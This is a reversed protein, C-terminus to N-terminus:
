RKRKKAPKGRSPAGATPTGSVAKTANTESSALAMAAPAAPTLPSSDSAHEQKARDSKRPTAGFFSALSPQALWPQSRKTDAPEALMSDTQSSAPMGAGAALTPSTRFADNFMVSVAIHDSYGPPTYILGTYPATPFQTDNLRMNDVQLSLGDGQAIGNVAAAHWGDYHTAANAAAQTSTAAVTPEGVRKGQEAEVTADAWPMGGPLCTSPASVVCEAFTARDVIVYDLRTGSNIYRSNSARSWTTFRDQAEPHVEAFIDAWPADGEPRVLERLWPVCGGERIHICEASSALQEAALGSAECIDKVPKWQEKWESFPGLSAEMSGVSIRGDVDVWLLRREPKQDAPRHTLNLDGCLVVRKGSSRLSQMTHSLAELFRLKASVAEADNYSVSPAYVNLLACFGHDTLLVRGQQDFEPIGLARQTAGLVPIDDRVWTAVGRPPNDANFAWFSHYGKIKAGLEQAAIQNRLDKAQVKSEQVCFFAPRGLRELYEALGKYHRRILTHTPTWASVNWSILLIGDGSCSATGDKQEVGM